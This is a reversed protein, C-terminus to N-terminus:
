PLGTSSKVTDGGTYGAGRLCPILSWNVCVFVQTLATLVSGGGQTGAPVGAVLGLGCSLLSLIELAGLGKTVLTTKSIQVLGEMSKVPARQTLLRYSCPTWLEICPCWNHVNTIWLAQLASQSAPLHYLVSLNACSLYIGQLKDTGTPIEEGKVTANLLRKGVAILVQIFVMEPVCAETTM